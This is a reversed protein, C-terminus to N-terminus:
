DDEALVVSEMSLINSWPIFLLREPYDETRLFIGPLMMEADHAFYRSVYTKGDKSRLSMPIGPKFSFLAGAEEETKDRFMDDIDVM